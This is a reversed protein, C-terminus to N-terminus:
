IFKICENEKGNILEIMLIGWLWWATFYCKAILM